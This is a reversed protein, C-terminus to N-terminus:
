ARTLTESYIKEIQDIMAARSYEESAVRRGTDGFSRAKQTDVVIDTLAAALADRDGTPVTRGTIGDRCLEPMATNDYAVLPKGAAMAEALVIGFGEHYSPLAFVDCHQFHAILEDRDVAGAVHIGDEPASSISLGYSPGVLFLNAGTEKRIRPMASLLDEIGKGSAIRGAYLIRPGTVNPLPCARERNWEAGDVSPSLLRIPPATPHAQRLITREHESLATWLPTKETQRLLTQRLLSYLRGSRYRGGTPSVVVPYHDRLLAPADASFYGLGFAHILDPKFARIRRFVGPWIPYVHGPIRHSRCRMISVGNLECDSSNELRVGEVHRLLDSAVVAVDHGRDTLGEAISRIFDDAGGVTPHYTISSLLVRM